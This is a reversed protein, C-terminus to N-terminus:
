IELSKSTRPDSELGSRERREMARRRLMRLRCPRRFCTLDPRRTFERAQRPQPTSLLLTLKSMMEM